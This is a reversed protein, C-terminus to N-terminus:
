NQNQLSISHHNKQNNFAWKNEGLGLDINAEEEAPTKGIIDYRFLPDFILFSGNWSNQASYFM